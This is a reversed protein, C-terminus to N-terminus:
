PIQYVHSPYALHIKHVTNEYFKAVKRSHRDKTGLTGKCIRPSPANCEGVTLGELKRENTIITHKTDGESTRM